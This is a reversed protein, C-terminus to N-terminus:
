KIVEFSRTNARDWDNDYSQQNFRTEQRYRTETKHVWKTFIGGGSVKFKHTYSVQAIYNYSGRNYWINNRQDITNQLYVTSEDFKKFLNDRGQKM